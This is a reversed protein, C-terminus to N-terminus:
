AVNNKEEILKKLRETKVCPPIEFTCIESQYM